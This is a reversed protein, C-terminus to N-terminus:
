STRRLGSNLLPRVLVLDFLGSVADVTFLAAGRVKLHTISYVSINAKSWDISSYLCTRKNFRSCQNLESIQAAM